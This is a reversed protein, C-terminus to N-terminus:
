SPGHNSKSHPQRRTKPHLGAAEPTAWKKAVVEVSTLDHAAREMPNKRM